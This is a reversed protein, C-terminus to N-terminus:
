ANLPTYTEKVVNLKEGSEKNQFIFLSIFNGTHRYGRILKQFSFYGKRFKTYTDHLADLGINVAYNM